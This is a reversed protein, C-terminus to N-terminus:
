GGGAGKDTMVGPGTTDPLGVRDAETLAEPTLWPSPPAAAYAALRRAAEEATPPPPVRPARRVRRKAAAGTLASASRADLFQPESM